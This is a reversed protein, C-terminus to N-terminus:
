RKETRDIIRYEVDIIENTGTPGPQEPFPSGPMGGGRRIQRRMRWAAFAGFALVVPVIILALSAAVLMLLVGLGAAGALVLPVAWRPLRFIRGQLAARIDHDNM